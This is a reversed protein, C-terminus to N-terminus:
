TAPSLVQKAHSAPPRAIHKLDIHIDAAAARGVGDDAQYALGPWGLGGWGFDCRECRQLQRLRMDPCRM